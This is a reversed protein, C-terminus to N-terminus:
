QRRHWSSETSLLYSSTSPTTRAHADRYITIPLNFRLLTWKTTHKHTLCINHLHVVLSFQGIALHKVARALAMFRKSKTYTVTLDNRTSVRARTHTHTHTHTHTNRSRKTKRKKEEDHNEHNKHPEIVSVHSNM